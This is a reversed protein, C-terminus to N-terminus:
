DHNNKNRLIANPDKIAIQKRIENYICYAAKKVEMWQQYASQEKGALKDYQKQLLPCQSRCQHYLQKLSKFVEWHQQFKIKLVEINRCDIETMKLKKSKVRIEKLSKRLDERFSKLRIKTDFVENKTTSIRVHALRTGEVLRYYDNRIKRYKELLESYEALKRKLLRKKRIWLILLALIFAM